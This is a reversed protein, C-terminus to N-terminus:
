GICFPDCLCCIHSRMEDEVVETDETEDHAPNSAEEPCTFENQDGVQDILGEQVETVGLRGSENV